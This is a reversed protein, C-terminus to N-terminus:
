SLSLGAVIVLSSGPKKLDIVTPRYARSSITVYREGGVDSLPLPLHANRFCRSREHRGREWESTRRSGPPSSGTSPHSPRLDAPCAIVSPRCLPSSRVIVLIASALIAPRLVPLNGQGADQRDLGASRPLSKWPSMSLAMAPSSLYAIPSGFDEVLIM